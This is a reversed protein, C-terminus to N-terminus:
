QDRGDDMDVLVFSGTFQNSVSMLEYGVVVYHEDVVQCSRFANCLTFFRAAPYTAEEIITHM